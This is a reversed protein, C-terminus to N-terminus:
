RPLEGHDLIRDIGLAPLDVPLTENKLFQSNGAQFLPAGLRDSRLSFMEGCGGRCPGTDRARFPCNPGSAALIWPRHLTGRLGAPLAEIGQLLNDLEVRAVGQEHLLAQMLPADFASSRLAALASPSYGELRFLGRKQGGLARGAALAPPRPLDRLLELTGWDSFLLEDGPRLDPLLAELAARFSPLFPQSLVPTALTLSLGRSRIAAMMERLVGTVPFRWPCFEAGLYIRDPGEPIDQRPHLFFARELDAM